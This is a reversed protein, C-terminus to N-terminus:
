EPVGARRFGECALARNPERLHTFADLLDNSNLDLEGLLQAVNKIM